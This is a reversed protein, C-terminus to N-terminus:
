SVISVYWMSKFKGQQLEEAAKNLKVKKALRNSVQIAKRAIAGQHVKKKKPKQEDQLEDNSSLMKIQKGDDKSEINEPNDSNSAM